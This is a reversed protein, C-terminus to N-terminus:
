THTALYGSCVEGHMTGISLHLRGNRILVQCVKQTKSMVKVSAANVAKADIAGGKAANNAAVAIKRVEGLIFGRFKERRWVDIPPRQRQARKHFPKLTTDFVHKVALKGSADLPKAAHKDFQNKVDRRVERLSTM